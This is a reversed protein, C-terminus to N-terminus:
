KHYSKNISSKIEKLDDKLEELAYLKGSLEKITQQYKDERASQLKERAEQQKFFHFILAISFAVWISQTLAADIITTEM